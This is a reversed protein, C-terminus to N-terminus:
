QICVFAKSFNRPNKLITKKKLIIKKIKEECPSMSEVNVIDSIKFHPYVSFLYLVM